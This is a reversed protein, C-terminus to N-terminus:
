EIEIVSYTLSNFHSQLIRSIIGTLKSLKKPSISTFNGWFCCCLSVLKPINRTNQLPKKNCPLLLTKGVPDGLVKNRMMDNWEHETTHFIISKRKMVAVLARHFLSDASWSTMDTHEFPIYSLPLYCLKRTVNENSTYFFYPWKEKKKDM